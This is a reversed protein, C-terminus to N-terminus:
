LPPHTHIILTLLRCGDKTVETSQPYDCLVVLTFVLHVPSTLLVLSGTWDASLCVLGIIIFAKTQAPSILIYSRVQGTHRSSFGGFAFCLVSFGALSSCCLSVLCVVFCAVGLPCVLFVCFSSGCAGALVFSWLAPLLLCASVLLSPSLLRRSPLLSLLSFAACALLRARAAKATDSPYVPDCSPSYRLSPALACSCCWLMTHPCLGCLASAKTALSRLSSLLWDVVVRWVLPIVVPGNASVVLYRSPPVLLVSVPGSFVLLCLPPLPFLFSRALGCAGLWLPLCCFSLLWLLVGLLLLSLSSGRLVLFFSAVRSACLCLGFRFCLCGLCALSARGLPVSGCVGSLYFVLTIPPILM